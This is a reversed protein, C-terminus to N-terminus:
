LPCLVSDWSWTSGNCVTSLGNGTRCSGYGCKLDGGCMQGENPALKPCGPAGDSAARAWVTNDSCVGGNGCGTCVCYIGDTASLLCAKATAADCQTGMVVNPCGHLQECVPKSVSWVKNSCKAVPRCATRVDTGYSCVLGDACGTGQVPEAKPCVKDIPNPSTGGTGAGATGTGATGPQGAGSVSGGVVLDGAMGLNGAIGIVGGGSTSGASGGKSGAGGGGIKGGSGILSGGSGRGGRNLVGATGGDTVDDAGGDGGANGTEATFASGGCALAVSGFAIWSYARM